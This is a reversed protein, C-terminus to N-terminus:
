KLVHCGTRGRNNEHTNRPRQRPFQFNSTFDVQDFKADCSQNNNPCFGQVLIVKLINCDKKCKRFALSIFMQRLFYDWRESVNHLSLYFKMMLEMEGTIKLHKIHVEFKTKSM